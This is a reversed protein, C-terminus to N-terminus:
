PATSGAIAMAAARVDWVRAGTLRIVVASATEGFGIRVADTAADALPRAREAFATRAAADASMMTVTGFAGLVDGSIDFADRYVLTGDITAHTRMALKATGHLGFTDVVIACGSGAIAFTASAAHESEPELVLPESAVLLRAGDAIQWQADSRSPLAGAFVPTAMQGAAILSAGADLRGDLTFRDGALVGPGLSSLMVRVAGDSQAFSRSSRSLGSYRITRLRSCSGTADCAIEVHGAHRLAPEARPLTATV